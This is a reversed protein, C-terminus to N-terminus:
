KRKTWAVKLMAATANEIGVIREEFAADDLRRQCDERIRGLLENGYGSFADTIRNAM